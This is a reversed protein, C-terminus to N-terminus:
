IPLLQRHANFLFLRKIWFASGMQRLNKWEPRKIQNSFNSLQNKKKKAPFLYIGQNASVLFILKLWLSGPNKDGGPSIKCFLPM